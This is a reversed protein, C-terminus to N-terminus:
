GRPAPHLSPFSVQHSWGMLCVLELFPYTWVGPCTPGPHAMGQPNGKAGSGRSHVTEGMAPGPVRSACGRCGFHSGELFGPCSIRGSGVQTPSAQAQRSQPSVCWLHVPSAESTDGASGGELVVM